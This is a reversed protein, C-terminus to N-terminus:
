RRRSEMSELGTASGASQAGRELKAKSAEVKKEKANGGKRWSWTQWSRAPQTGLSARWGAGVGWGVVAALLSGAPPSFALKSTILYVLTKDSVTIRDSSTSLVFHRKTITPIMAQYQALIAFILPTPGAPLINLRYFTLPRLFVLALPLLLSTM